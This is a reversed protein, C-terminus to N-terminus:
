RAHFPFEPDVTVPNVGVPQGVRVLAVCDGPGPDLRPSVDDDAVLVGVRGDGQDDGDLRVSHDEQADERPRGLGVESEDL